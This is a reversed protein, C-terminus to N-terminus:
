QLRLMPQSLEVVVSILAVLCSRNDKNQYPGNPGMKIAPLVGGGQPCGLLPGYFEFGCVEWAILKVFKTKVKTPPLMEYQPIRARLISKPIRFSFLLTSLTPVCASSARLRPTSM